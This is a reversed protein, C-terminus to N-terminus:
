IKMSKKYKYFRMKEHIPRGGGQIVGNVSYIYGLGIYKYAKRHFKRSENASFYLGSCADYQVKRNGIKAICINM